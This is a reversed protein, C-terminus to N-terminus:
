LTSTRASRPIQRLLNCEELLPPLQMELRMDALSLERQPQLQRGSVGTESCKM